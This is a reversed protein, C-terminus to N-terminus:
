SNAKPTIRSYYNVKSQLPNTTSPPIDIDMEFLDEKPKNRKFLWKLFKFM